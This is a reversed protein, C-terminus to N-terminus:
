INYVALLAYVSVDSNDIPKYHTREYLTVNTFSIVFVAFNCVQWPCGIPALAFAM